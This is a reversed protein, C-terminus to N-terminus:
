KERIKRLLSKTIRYQRPSHRGQKRLLKQRCLNDLLRYATKLSKNWPNGTVVAIFDKSSFSHEGYLGHVVRLANDLWHWDTMEPETQQTSNLKSTSIVMAHRYLTYVVSQAIEFDVDQCQITTNFTSPEFDFSMFEVRHEDWLRLMTLVAAMRIHMFGHRKPIAAFKIDCERVFDEYVKKWFACHSNWQEDTFLVTLRPFQRQWRWAEFADQAIEMSAVEYERVDAPPRQDRWEYDSDGQQHLVRTFFGDSLSQFLKFYQDDTGSLRLTIMPREIDVPRGDIKFFQSVPENLLAKCFLDAFQGYEKSVADVLSNIETSSVILGDQQNAKLSLMLQSKSTTAPMNMLQMSPEDAPKMTWDPERKEKKAKSLEMDWQSCEKEWDDHRKRSEERLRQDIISTICDAFTLVSKNTGADSKLVYNLNLSYLKGNYAVQVHGFITSYGSLLSMLLVDVSKASYQDLHETVPHLAKRLMPTILDYVKKDFQPCLSAIDMPKKDDSAYGQVDSGVMPSVVSKNNDKIM